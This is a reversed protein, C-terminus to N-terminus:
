KVAVVTYCFPFESNGIPTITVQSFGAEEVMLQRLGDSSMRWYDKFVQEGHLHFNFPTTLLLTGAPKLVDYLQHVAIWPRPIHELVDFCLIFDFSGPHFLDTLSHIDSVIDVNPHEFCDTAIYDCRDQLLQRPFNWTGAGVDLVKGHIHTKWEELFRIISIRPITYLKGKFV